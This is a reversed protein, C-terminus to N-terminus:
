ATRKFMYVVIYPQVVSTADPTTSDTNGGLGSDRITATTYGIVGAASARRNPTYTNGANYSYLYGGHFGIKAYGSNSLSHTHADGAVTKAGGTEESADFDADGSDLSVLVKGAGFTAWTGFGFTTNPNTAVITTYICGIPYTAKLIAIKLNALTLEKLSNSDASDILPVTDADVPTTKGAVGVISSAINTADTVDASEEITGLKTSSTSDFSIKPTNAVIEDWKDSGLLGAQTTNAEPLVVDDVGSDSTVGYTTATVTGTSLATPVNTGGATGGKVLKIYGDRAGTNGFRDLFARVSIKDITSGVSISFGFNTVQLYQTYETVPIINTASYTVIDGDIALNPNGWTNTGGVASNNAVSGGRVWGTDSM